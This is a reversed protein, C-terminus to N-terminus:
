KARRDKKAWGNGKFVLNPVSLQRKMMIGCKECTPAEPDFKTSVQWEEKGCKECRWDYTPSM